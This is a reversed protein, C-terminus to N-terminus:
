NLLNIGKLWSDSTFASLQIQFPVFTLQSAGIQSPWCKNPQTKYRLLDGWSQPFNSWLSQV